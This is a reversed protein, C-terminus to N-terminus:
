RPRDTTPREEDELDENVSQDKDPIREDTDATDTPM